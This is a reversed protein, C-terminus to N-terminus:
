SLPGIVDTNEGFVEQGLGRVLHTAPKRRNGGIGQAKQFSIPPWPINPLQASHDGAGDQKM